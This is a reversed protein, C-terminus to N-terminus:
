LIQLVERINTVGCLEIKDGMSRRISDLNTKPLICRNFGMKIAEQLRQEVFSVGRVEGTLGVEGFIITGSPIPLNRYSSIVASVIGLDIAPEGLKMGGALNVYADCGGLQLGAKKELVALLLNVRNFDIGVTTRRPMNFSTPSVLAQIEILLPRTGEMSCVVASGAEDIPRGDLMIQSPNTVEVLGEEKMEFVGIENTSGFRNKVGRIVRYVASREGEFYLVTDVMHELTRPGAVVGEKTVHGVLFIAIGEVKAIQMLLSTVERVQSVSGAASSIDDSYMTQVSDVVVMDPKKERILAVAANIDTECYLFIEKEFDGLRQARMKIQKLSEEGSVYLITKGQNGLNRCVQLLLTSKGIGPDGGVLTLSGKVIGGGLVRDLEPMGSSIRDEEEMSIQFISTMKSSPLGSVGNKEKKSASVKEEVLTNWQRCGPCQGMWKSAEYGCEKCFFVTKIKAM